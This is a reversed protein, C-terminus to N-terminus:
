LYDKILDSIKTKEVDTNLTNKLLNINACITEIENQNKKKYSISIKHKIKKEFAKVVSLVSYRKGSGCNIVIKKSREWM